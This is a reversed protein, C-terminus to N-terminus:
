LTFSKITGLSVVLRFCNEIAKFHGKESLLFIFLYFLILLDYLRKRESLNGWKRIKPVLNGSSICAMLICFQLMSYPVKFLKITDYSRNGNECM